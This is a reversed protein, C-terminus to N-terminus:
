PPRALIIGICFQDRIGRLGKGTFRALGGAFARARRPLICRFDKEAVPEIRRNM